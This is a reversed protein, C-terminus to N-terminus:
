ALWYVIAAAVLVLAILILPKKTAAPSPGQTRAQIQTTDYEELKGRVLDRVNEDIAAANRAFRELLYDVDCPIDARHIPTGPHQGIGAGDDLECHTFTAPSKWVMSKEHHPKDYALEFRNARGAPDTWVFLDMECDQFWRRNPSSESKIERLM